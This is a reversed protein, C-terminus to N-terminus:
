AGTQWGMGLAQAEATPLAFRLSRELADIAADVKGKADAIADTQFGPARDMASDLRSVEELVQSIERAMEPTLDACARISELHSMVNGAVAHRSPDAYRVEARILKIYSVLTAPVTM